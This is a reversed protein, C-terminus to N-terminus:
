SQDKEIALQPRAYNRLASLAMALCALLAAGALLLYWPFNRPTYSLTVRHKGPPVPVGLVLGDAPVVAVAQGDVKATWDSNYSDSVVLLGHGDFDAQVEWSGPTANVIQVSPTQRCSFPAVTVGPELLVEERPLFRSAGGTAAMAARISDPAATRQRCVGWAMGGYGPRERIPPLGTAQLPPGLASADEDVPALPVQAIAQAGDVAAGLSKIRWLVGPGVSLTIEASVAAAAPGSVPVDFGFWSGTFGGAPFTEAIPALAHLIRSDAGPQQRTWDATETGARVPVTALVAGDAGMLRLEAVRDGNAVGEACGLHSVFRLRSKSGQPLKARITRVNSTAGCGTGLLQPELSEASGAIWRVALVDLLPADARLSPFGGITDAGTFRAYRAPLLPGYGVVSPIAFRMNVNPRVPSAPLSAANLPLVRGKGTSLLEVIRQTDAQLAGSVAPSTGYRWEYFWGFSGLDLVLLLVALTATGFGPRRLLLTLVVVSAGILALPGWVAPQAWSSEATPLGLAVWAVALVSAMAACGLLWGGRRALRGQLLASLGYASLVGAAIIVILGFRAQARFQGLVPLRYILEGVPTSAGLCLVLAGLASAVWFMHGRRVPWGLVAALALLWPLVGAYIALETINWPGTYPGFPGLPFAGFLNPFVLMRLSGVDHSYSGFDQLTWTGRVSESASAILTGLSPAALMLGLSFLLFVRALVTGAARRGDTSWTAVTEHVAFSGALLLGIISVQPHGGLVSLSVAVAGGAVPLWSRATRLSAVAWLISPVWAAAHIMSLHGLHGVMFGSGSVVIAAAMAGLRSGTLRLALGFMGLACVVYASIVLFNFTPSIWRLPYLTQAQMDSIVSYGSLINRNWLERIPLDFLPLYYIEGDGPALLANRMWAPSFYLAFFVSFLALLLLGPIVANVRPQPHMQVAQPGLKM